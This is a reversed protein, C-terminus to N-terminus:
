HISKCSPAPRPSPCAPWGTKSSCAGGVDSLTRLALLGSMFRGIRWIMGNAIMILGVIFTAIIGRIFMTQGTPMYASMYKMTADGTVFCAMGLLM